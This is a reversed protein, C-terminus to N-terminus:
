QASGSPASMRDRVFTLFERLAEEPVESRHSEVVNTESAIHFHKPFTAVSQWRKHLANDQRYITGDVARRERYYSYRDALKLSFWIDVFSGDTLIVRVENVGPVFAEVVIDACELEAIERLREVDVLSM